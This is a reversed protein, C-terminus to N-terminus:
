WPRIFKAWPLGTEIFGSCLARLRCGPHCCHIMRSQPECKIYQRLRGISIRTRVLIPNESRIRTHTASKHFQCCTCPRSGHFTWGPSNRRPTGEERQPELWWHLRVEDLCCLAVNKLCRASLENKKLTSITYIRIEPSKVVGNGGSIGVYITIKTPVPYFGASDRKCFHNKMPVSALSEGFLSLLFNLVELHESCVWHLCGEGRKQVTLKDSFM